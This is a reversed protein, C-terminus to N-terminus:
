LVFLEQSFCTNEEKKELNELENIELLIAQEEEYRDALVEIDYIYIDNM